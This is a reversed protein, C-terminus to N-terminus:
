PKFIPAIEIDESLPFETVLRAIETIRTLNAIVGPRHEPQLPLDMLAATRDVYDAVADPKEKTM